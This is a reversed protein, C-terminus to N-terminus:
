QNDTRTSKYEQQERKKRLAQIEPSRTHKMAIDKFHAKNDSLRESTTRSDVIISSFDVEKPVMILPEKTVPHLIRGSSTEFIEEGNRTFTKYKYINEKYTGEKNTFVAM